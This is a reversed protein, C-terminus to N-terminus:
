STLIKNKILFRTEQKLLIALSIEKSSHLQRPILNYELGLLIKDRRKRNKM